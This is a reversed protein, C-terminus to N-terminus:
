QFDEEALDIVSQPTPRGLRRDLVVRLKAAAAQVRNGAAAVAASTKAASAAKRTSPSDGTLEDSETVSIWAVDLLRLEEERALESQSLVSLAALGLAKVEDDADLARDMAWQTRRWWESRSDADSKQALAFADAQAKQRLTLLGVVAAAVAALLIALPGLAAVIEWWQAPALQDIVTSAATAPSLTM